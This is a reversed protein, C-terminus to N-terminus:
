AALFDRLERTLDDPRDLMPVHGAGPIVRLQCRPMAAALEAAGAPPVLVDRAGWLLLTPVLVRALERAHETVLLEGAARLLALPSRSAIDTAVTVAAALPLGLITRAAPLANGLLGAGATRVPPAILVLRHVREPMRAALGACALAGLSHGVVGARGIGLREMLERLIDPAEALRFPAGGGLPLGFGFGPLEPLIVRHAEALAQTTRSWWRPSGGLGHVLLVPPGDGVARFRM